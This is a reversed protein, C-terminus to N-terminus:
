LVVGQEVGATRMAERMVEHHRASYPTLPL